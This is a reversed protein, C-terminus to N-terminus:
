KRFSFVINMHDKDRRIRWPNWEIVYDKLLFGCGLVAVIVICWSLESLSITQNIGSGFLISGALIGVTGIISELCMCQAKEGSKEARRQRSLLWLDRILGQFLLLGSMSLLLRGIPLSTPFTSALFWCAIGVLPILALEVREVTTM